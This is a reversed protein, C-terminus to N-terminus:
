LPIKDFAPVRGDAPEGTPFMWENPFHDRVLIMDNDVCAAVDEAFGHWYIVMGRGYRNNYGRFQDVNEKFTAADAFMAKSDIWNVVKSCSWEYSQESQDQPQSQYQGLESYDWEAPRAAMPILFLIDPTKPKGRSRLEAETEFCMQKQNLLDVLLEEYERGLCEKVLELDPACVPDMAIMQLLESRIRPDKIQEPDSVLSSLQLGKYESHELFYKALKFTGFHFDKAISLLSEGGNVRQVIRVMRDETVTKIEDKLNRVFMQGYLSLLTDYEVGLADAHSADVTQNTFIARRVVERMKEYLEKPIIM